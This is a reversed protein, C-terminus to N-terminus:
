VTGETSTALITPQSSRRWFSRNQTSHSTLGWSSWDDTSTRSNTTCTLTPIHHDVTVCISHVFVVDPVVCTSLVRVADGHEDVEGLRRVLNSADVIISREDVTIAGKLGECWVREWVTTARETFNYAYYGWRTKFVNNCWLCKTIGDAFM